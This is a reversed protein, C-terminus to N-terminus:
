REPPYKKRKRQLTSRRVGLVRAAESVNGVCSLVFDIYHWEVFYLTPLEPATAVLLRPESERVKGEPNDLTTSPCRLVNKEEWGSATPLSMGRADAPEMASSTEVFTPRWTEMRWQRAVVLDDFADAPSVRRGFALLANPGRRTEGRRM